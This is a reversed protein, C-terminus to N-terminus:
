ATPKFSPCQPKPMHSAFIRQFDVAVVVIAAGMYVDQVRVKGGEVVADLMRVIEQSMAKQWVLLIFEFSIGQHTSFNRQAPCLVRSVTVFLVVVRM